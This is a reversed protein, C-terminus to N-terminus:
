GALLRDADSFWRQPSYPALVERLRSVPSLAAAREREEKITAALHWRVLDHALCEITLRDEGATWTAIIQGDSTAGLGPRRDPKLFILMRLFTAFSDASPPKDLADWDEVGLLSDLQSFLKSRWNRDLHMAVLSTRVKFQALADYLREDLGKDSQVATGAFTPTPRAINSVQDSIVKSTSSLGSSQLFPVGKEAVRRGTQIQIMSM